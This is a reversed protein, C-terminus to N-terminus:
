TGTLPSIMHYKDRVHVFGFPLTSAPSPPPNPQPSRSPHPSFASLQLQVVIFFIFYFLVYIYSVFACVVSYYRGSPFALTPSCPCLPSFPSLFLSQKPCCACSEIHLHHTKLQVSSVQITKCVLTVWYIWNFFFFSHWSTTFGPWALMSLGRHPFIFRQFTESPTSNRGLSLFLDPFQFLTNWGGLEPPCPKESLRTLVWILRQPKSKM